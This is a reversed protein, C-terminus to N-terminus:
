ILVVLYTFSFAFFRYPPKNKEGDLLEAEYPPRVADLEDVKSVKTDPKSGLLHPGSPALEVGPLDWFVGQLFQVHKDTPYPSLM